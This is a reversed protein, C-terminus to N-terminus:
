SSQSNYKPVAKKKYFKTVKEKTLKDSPNPVIEYITRSKDALLVTNSNNKIKM